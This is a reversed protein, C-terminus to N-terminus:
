QGRRLFLSRCTFAMFSEAVYFRGCQNTSAKVGLGGVDEKTEPETCLFCYRQHQLSLKDAGLRQM